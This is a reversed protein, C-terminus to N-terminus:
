QRRKHILQAFYGQHGAFAADEIYAEVALCDPRASGLPTERFEGFQFLKETVADGRIAGEAVAVALLAFGGSRSGQGIGYRPCELGRPWTGPSWDCAGSASAAFGRGCKDTFRTLLM